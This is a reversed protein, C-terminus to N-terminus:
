LLLLITLVLGAVFGLLIVFAKILKRDASSPAYHQLASRRGPIVMRSMTDGPM